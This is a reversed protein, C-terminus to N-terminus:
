YHLPGSREVGTLQLNRNMLVAMVEDRMGQWMQVQVGENKEWVSEWGTGERWRSRIVIKNERKLSIWADEKHKEEQKVEKSRYLTVHADEIEHGIDVYLHTWVMCTRKPNPKAWEPHYDWIRDMQRCFEHHRTKYYSFLIGKHLYVV